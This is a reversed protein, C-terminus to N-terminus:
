KLYKQSTLSTPKGPARFNHYKKHITGQVYLFPFGDTGKCALNDWYLFELHGLELIGKDTWNGDLGSYGCVALTGVENGHSREYWDRPLSPYSLSGPFLTALSLPCRPSTLQTPFSKGSSSPFPAVKAQTITRM